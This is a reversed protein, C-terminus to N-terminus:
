RLLSPQTWFLLIRDPQMVFQITSQPDLVQPEESHPHMYPPTDHYRLPMDMIDKKGENPRFGSGTSPDVPAVAVPAEIEPTEYRQMTEPTEIVHDVSQGLTRSPINIVAKEPIQRFTRLNLGSGDPGLPM